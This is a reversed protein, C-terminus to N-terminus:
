SLALLRLNKIKPVFAPNSSKLVIKISINNFPDLGTLDTSREVFTGEPDKNISVYGTDIYPLKRLDVAGSWTRYYVKVSTNNPINADFMVKLTDAAETLTLTRTIYNAENSCGFPAVDDVYKDLVSISFDLDTTADVTASGAFSRDLYVRTLDLEENGAYTTKDEESVVKQVVYTGNVNANCNEIIITKGIGVSALINDITDINSRIVGVGGINEFVLNPASRIYFPTSSSIATTATGTLTISTNSNVTSVTGILANDSTRYLKNSVSGTVQTTFTTGSGTVSTGSASTITGTGTLVLDANIIDGASIIARKDIETVNINAATVNNIKNAIAFASTQVIDVVPSINHNTSYLVSKVLLSSQKVLPSETIIDQNEFSCIHGRTTLNYNNNPVLPTWATFSGDELQMKFYYEIKTDQLIVDSNKLFLTDVPLCRNCTVTNGGYEGKTFDATTGSLLNNGYVDTTVLNIVFSDTELGESLVTHERNLLTHPIGKTTDSSGYYGEPVDSIYAIEGAIMGHNRAWVRIKTTNPTIEFPNVDLLYREPPITRFIVESATGIDFKSKNLYFKVDLLPHIEWERSNQSAYLSGTLPQGAITNNTLIDDQGMESVYIRAGPEDTMIVLAYTESDQLYIPAKFKFTTAISSDDSVNIEQITKTVTSFPVVKSSPVGNDTNRIEVTIPRNGSVEFYLDVSSVFVGGVSNITFTQALPDVTHQYIVKSNTTTRRITPKSTSGNQDFVEESTFGAVRSSVITREKTLSIGQAFYTARGTSDYQNDSNSVNDTLEFSKEGCRFSLTENEPLVFVGCANGERDTILKDGYSSLTPATSTSTSGNIETLTVANFNSTNKLNVSGGLTEGVAFGHKVNIVFLEQNKIGYADYDDTPHAYGGLAVVCSARYRYLKGKNGNSYSATSYTDFPSILSGDLTELILANGSISRVRFTKLNLQKATAANTTIDVSSPISQNEKLDLLNVQATAKYHDLNYMVVHHGPKINVADAVTVTITESDTIIPAIANISTATHPTNMLVDGYAFAQEIKGKFARSNTDSIVNNILDDWAFTMLSQGIRSVKFKDAPVVYEQVSVNDFFPYFRTLPKLNQAIFSIPRSRMYPIYSMDVVRDGYSQTNVSSTVNYETGTRTQYGYQDIITTQYGTITNGSRSESTFSSVNKGVWHDVWDDWQTGIVEEVIYKIADYNNDDVAVLDPNRTTSKWSDSPPYLDVVGNFTGFALTQIDMSRTAHPNFIFPEETFPLTIIDGTKSYNKNSRDTSSSVDEVMELAVSNYKPRLIRNKSDISIKYDENKVDGINHGTFQDVIFGNKFRDLGTTEDIVTMTETQKELLSLTVYYELNSIRRELKGIDQMTYRRNERQKIIVDKVDKTYPPISISALVLGEQPDIPEKPTPSPVGSLINFNGVSDLVLKDIRGLYNAVPSTLDSGIKPLEPYFYNANTLIPRFDIVDSLCIETKTGTADTTTYYPIEDYQLDSSSYVYSDVSFYNGNTGAVSFYDYVARIAGNPVQYGPKVILKANTYYTPRQGNDLTFRDTIDIESNEDYTDYDGPTMYVAVLKLVDGHPLQITNLNLNTKGTIEEVHERNIVKIKEVAATKVLQVSAILYYNGNPVNNFEVYKRNTDNDFVIQSETIPMPENSDANILLFNSMDTESLFTEDTLPTEFWAKNSQTNMIPWQRRVVITSNKKTDASNELGRLTKVFSKGVPFILSEFAPEVINARFVQIVGDAVTALGNASLTISNNTFTSVVGIRVGNLYIVDNAKLTDAFYTGSGTISTSSTSSTGYGDITMLSPDINCTFNGGGGTGSISKVTGEFSANNYMNIDFLGLKYVSSTRNTYNGSSLQISKVRATGVINAASVSAGVPINSTTRILPAVAYGSGGSVITYGTVSGNTITCTINAGSGAGTLPQISLTPASTYGEGGDVITIGTIVGSGNITATLNALRPQLTKLLYVKEFTSISPAKYLNTVNVYSGVNIGVSRLDVREVHNNELGNIPRAKNFEIFQSAQNEVEYGQVYAKGPDVVTVFKDDSGYTAGAIPTGILPPYVGFNNGDNLHERVSIKFKNVEYNGSEDLTRRALTKELESYSAKDILQQVRGESVRVLEIFKFNDTTDLDLKVLSLSIKYRHAGPAAFNYSGTANDLIQDDDEPTVTEETVKFGVRATPTNTFRGVYLKLDDNRVFIGDIYYIGARVDVSFAYGLVDSSPDGSYVTATEGVNGNLKVVCTIDTLQDEKLRFNTSIQNDEVKAVINEGPILRNTEYDSATGEIKCYLTPIDTNEVIYGSGSTDLVRMKVGSSEGTIIKNKLTEIYTTVDVTGTFQELKIFHVKSDVNVSGPIVQSGNKFIHGGFRSVQNQLITQLQTLERAQVAYSPRFLIRYFDKKEDYDDFYPETNFDIAM